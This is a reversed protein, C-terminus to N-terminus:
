LNPGREGPASDASLLEDMAGRAWSPEGVELKDFADSSLDSEDMAAQGSLPEYAKQRTGLRVALLTVLVGLAIGLLGIVIYGLATGSSFVSGMLGLPGGMAASGFSAESASSIGMGVVAVVAVSLIGGGLAAVRQRKRLQTEERMHARKLVVQVREDTSKM